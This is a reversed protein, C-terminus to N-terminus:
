LSSKGKQNPFIAMNILYVLLEDGLADAKKHCRALAIEISEVMALESMVRAAVQAAKRRLRKRSGTVNTNVNSLKPCYTIRRLCLCSPHLRELQRKATAVANDCQGTKSTLPAVRKHAACLSILPKCLELTASSM